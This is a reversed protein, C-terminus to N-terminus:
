SEYYVIVGEWFRKYSYKPVDLDYLFFVLAGVYVLHAQKIARAVTVSNSITM